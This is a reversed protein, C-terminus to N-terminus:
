RRETSFFRFRPAGCTPADFRSTTEPEQLCLSVRFIGLIYRVAVARRNKRWDSM